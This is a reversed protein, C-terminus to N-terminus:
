LHSRVLLHLDISRSLTDTDKELINLLFFFGFDTRIRIIDNRRANNTSTAFGSLFLNPQFCDGAEPRHLEAEEAVRRGARRFHQLFNSDLSRHVVDHHETQNLM